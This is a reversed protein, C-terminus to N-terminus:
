QELHAIHEQDVTLEARTLRNYPMMQNKSMLEELEERIDSIRDRIRRKKQEAQAKANDAESKLKQDQISYSKPDTIDRAIVAHGPSETEPLEWIAPDVAELSPM